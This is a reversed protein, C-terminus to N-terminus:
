GLRRGLTGEVSADVAWNVRSIMEGLCLDTPKGSGAKAKLRDRAACVQGPTFNPFMM